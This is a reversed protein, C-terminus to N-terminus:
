VFYNNFLFKNFVNEEECRWIYSHEIYRKEIINKSSM